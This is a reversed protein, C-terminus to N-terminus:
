RKVEEALALMDEISMPTIYGMQMQKALRAEVLPMVANLEHDAAISHKLRIATRAIKRHDIVSQELDSLGYSM